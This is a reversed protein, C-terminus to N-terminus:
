LLGQLARPPRGGAATRKPRKKRPSGRGVTRRISDAGTAALGGGGSAGSNASGAQFHRVSAGGAGASPPARDASPGGGSRASGGAFICASVARATAAVAAAAQSVRGGSSSSSAWTVASSTQPVVSLAGRTARRRKAAGADTTLDASASDTEKDEAGIMVGDADQSNADKSNYDGAGGASEQLSRGRKNGHTTDKLEFEPTDTRDRGQARAERRATRSNGNSLITPQEACPVMDEEDDDTMKLNSAASTGGRAGRRAKATGGYGSQLAEIASAGETRGGTTARKMDVMNMDQPAAVAGSNRAGKASTGRGAAVTQDPKDERPQTAQRHPHIPRLTPTPAAGASSTLAGASSSSKSNLGSRRTGTPIAELTSTTRRSRQRGAARYYVSPARSPNGVRAARAAFREDRESLTVQGLM